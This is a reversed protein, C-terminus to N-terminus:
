VELNRRSARSRISEKSKSKHQKFDISHWSRTLLSVQSQRAKKVRDANTDHASKTEEEEPLGVYLSIANWHFLLKLLLM